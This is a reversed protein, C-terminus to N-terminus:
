TGTSNAHAEMAAIKDDPFLARPYVVTIPDRHDRVFVVQRKSLHKPSFPHRHGDDFHVAGDRASDVRGRRARPRCGAASSRM